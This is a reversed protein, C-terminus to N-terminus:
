EAFRMAYVDAGKMVFRLRVAKGALSSLDDREGWTAVRDLRNGILETSDGLTFGPIANGTEDQIEVRISGVASTSFNLHLRGGAFVLPRTVFEGGEYGATVSAIRDLPWSYRRVHASPAGYDHQIYLSMEEPGTQVLNLLPYNSRSIWREPRLGPPVLSERFTQDYTEGDRSTLLVPDTTDRAARAYRDPVGLAVTEEISLANRGPVFRAATALYLHPARFYPHTQNTYYHETQAPEYRMPSTESWTLFDESVARSIGRLGDLRWEGATSVGATFTRFYAVYRGEHASWFAVNQSDFAGKTIVPKDSLKKWHIGDASAFAFLGGGPNKYIAGGLAKFREEPSVGPRTDLFPSFNHAIPSETLIINNDRSGEYEHLGLVPREWQIGDRSQAYCVVEAVGDSQFDPKGRYYLRYRDGDHLVTGYGSFVGEWPRDFRLVEGEDRPPNLKLATGEFREVLHRDVFLELRSGIGLPDAAAVPLALLFPLLRTLSKM